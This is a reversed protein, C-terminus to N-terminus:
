WLQLRLIPGCGSPPTWLDGVHLRPDAIRLSAYVSLSGLVVTVALTLARPLTEATIKGSAGRVTSNRCTAATSLFSLGYEILRQVWKLQARLDIM